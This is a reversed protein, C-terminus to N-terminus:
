DGIHEWSIQHHMCGGYTAMIKFGEDRLSYMCINVWKSYIDVCDKASGTFDVGSQECIQFLEQDTLILLRKGDKANFTIKTKIKDLICNKIIIYRKSLEHTESFFSM